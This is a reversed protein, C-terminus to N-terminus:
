KITEMEAWNKGVKFEVKVPVLLKVVGTMIGRKWAVYQLLREKDDDKVEDLLSDHIQMLPRAFDKFGAQGIERYIQGMALQIIGQATSTVPMNSAYRFGAEQIEKIPCYVEPIYRIRGFMDKVYGYRRAQAAMEMQYDKVEPYLKYYEIIFKECDDISWSAVETEEGALRLDAIYEQIQNSLGRGGIMYIVGFNGKKAPYRYKDQKAVDLPVGFIKAATETHPDGGRLFLEILGKCHALHAQCVVEIQSLDGELLLRGPSAIFGKRILKGEKTRTPQNQLNPNKSALRGTETRTTMLTTHIRDTNTTPDHVALEQLSDAYTGKNKNQRRYALIDPIVSHNIKKLEMDDTCILGTPTRRTPKFGLEEYIVMAVQQSSSPNFPHGIKETARSAADVMDKGYQSSLRKFHAIDVAMGNDMMERIMPLISLSIHQAFDLGLDSVLKDMKLKVRLTSDADRCSYTAADEFKIDALSSEPMIGLKAEVAKREVEEIDCWRAYPDVDLDDVSDALIKQMKRTIHWPHRYKTVIKGAKNNWKVEEVPEPAPWEHSLAETLYQITLKRQGPRVMESYSKMPVGCIRSALEKLGQPLGLLYAQCMTDTFDDDPINLWQVDNLYFHVIPHSNWPILDILKQGKASIFWATGPVSSVQSSWLETNRKTTETDIAFEGASRAEDIVKRLLEPTDAVRYVPDPYDDTILFDSLPKGQVLGRLVNFDDYLFRMLSSDYFTAAPHYTPLVTRVSSGVKIAIPKGHLHEVSESTKLFYRIATAGMAVIIRPNVLEIELELWHSCANIYTSAPNPIKNHPPQCKLINSIFVDERHVGINALLSDLEQGAKGFFPIGWSNEESNHVVFPILYQNDETEINYVTCQQKVAEVSDVRVLKQDNFSVANREQQWSFSLPFVILYGDGARFKDHGCWTEHSISPYLGLRLLLGQLDFAAEKSATVIGDSHGDRKHKGDGAYWGAIFRKIIRPDSQFIAEPVRINKAGSGFLDLFWSALPRSYLHYDYSKGKVVWTGTIGLVRQCQQELIPRLGGDSKGLSFRVIGSKVNACGEAMYWGLIYALGQGLRFGLKGSRWLKDKVRNRSFDKRQEFPIKIIGKNHPSACNPLQPALLDPVIVHDGSQIEEARKWVPTYSLYAKQGCHTRSCPFCYKRTHNDYCKQPSVVLVPHNSTLLIDPM